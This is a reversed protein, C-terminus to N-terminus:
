GVVSGDWTLRQHSQYDDGNVPVWIQLQRDIWMVDPNNKRLSKVITGPVFYTETGSWNREIVWGSMSEKAHDKKLGTLYYSLYIDQLGCYCVLNGGRIYILTWDSM